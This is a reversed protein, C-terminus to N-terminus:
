KYVWYCEITNEHTYERKSLTTCKPARHKQLINHHSEREYFPTLLSKLQMRLLTLAGKGWIVKFKIGVVVSVFSKMSPAITNRFTPHNALSVTSPSVNSGARFTM